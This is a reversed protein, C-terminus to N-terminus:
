WMNIRQKEKKNLIKEVIMKSIDIFGTIGVKKSLDKM